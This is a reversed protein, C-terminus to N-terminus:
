LACPLGPPQGCGHGALLFFLQRCDGCTMRGEGRLPKLPTRRARRPSRAKKGRRERAEYACSSPRLTPLGPGCSKATRLQMLRGRLLNHASVMADMADRRANRSSRSVGRTGLRSPFVIGTIRHESFCFYKKWRSSSLIIAAGDTPCILQGNKVRASRQDRGMQAQGRPARVLQDHGGPGVACSCVNEYRRSSGLCLM